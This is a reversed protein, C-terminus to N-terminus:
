AALLYQVSFLEEDDTWTTELNFGADNAMSEFQEISYKHSHETVIYEDRDLEFTEGAVTVTQDNRSVLQMEIRSDNEDFIARHEFEQLCFNAGFERNLHRLMNLNFDATVGAADNYARELTKRDKILDVGVLLAGGEGAEDRMIRMLGIADAHSFNGITSGPFYILNREPLITPEPLDFAVALNDPRHDRLLNILMSTFGFVANTVQGSTTAMDSPLAFFARYIANAGDIVLLHRVPAAEGLELQEDAM